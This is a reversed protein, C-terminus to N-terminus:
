RRSYFFLNGEYNRDLNEKSDFTMLFSDMTYYGMEDYKRLIKYYDSKINESIGNENYKIIDSESLYFVIVSEFEASIHWIWIDQYQYKDKLYNEAEKIAKWNADTKAEHSFENFVVLLNDLNSPKTFNYMKALRSFEFSIQEQYEPNFLLKNVRMKTIDESSNLIVYLRYRDNKSDLKSFEFNLAKILYKENLWKSLESFIPRLIKKGQIIMKTEEYIKDGLLVM